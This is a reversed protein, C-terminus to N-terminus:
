SNFEALKPVAVSCVDALPILKKAGRLVDRLFNLSVTDYAPCYLQGEIALIQYLDEKSKIMWAIDSCLVKTIKPDDHHTVTRVQPGEPMKLLFPNNHETAPPSNMITNPEERAPTYVMSM